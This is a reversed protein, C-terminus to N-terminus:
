RALAVSVTAAQGAAVTVAREVRGARPHWAVLTYRGPPVADLAFAGAADSTAFYPHDFALVWARLWPHDVGRAEVAGPEALVAASPIVQGADTMRSELVVLGGPFRAFRVRSPMADRGNVLLTGGSAVTLVRPTLACRELALQHRRATPLPKGTRADALWVAVGAVAGGRASVTRDPFSAGCVRAAASDATVTTDAPLAGAVRVTGVVRGADATPRVVYAPASAVIGPLTVDRPAPVVTRRSAAAAREEDDRVPKSEGQACAGVALGAALAIV